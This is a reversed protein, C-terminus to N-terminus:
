NYFDDALRWLEEYPKVTQKLEDILPYETLMMELDTQQEHIRKM